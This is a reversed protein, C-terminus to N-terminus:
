RITGVHWARRGTKDNPNDVSWAVATDNVHVDALGHTEALKHLCNTRLDLLYDSTIEKGAYFGVVDRGATLWFIGEGSVHSIKETDRYVVAGDRNVWASVNEYAALYAGGAHKDDQHILSTEGTTLDKRYIAYTRTRDYRGPDFRAYYLWHGTVVPQAAHAVILRKPKPSGLKRGYINVEPQNGNAPSSRAEAWYVWGNLLRPITWGPVAPSTGIEKVIPAKAVQSIKRTKRDFAYMTWRDVDLSADPTENWVAYDEDLAAFTTQTGDHVDDRGLVLQRKGTAPDTVYLRGPHMSGAGATGESHEGIEQLVEGTEAIARNGIYESGEYAPLALEGTVPWGAPNTLAAATRQKM